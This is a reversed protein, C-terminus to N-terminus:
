PNILVKGASYTPGNLEPVPMHPRKPLKNYRTKFSRWTGFKTTNATRM